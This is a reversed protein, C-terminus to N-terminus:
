PKFCQVYAIPMRFPNRVPNPKGVELYTNDWPDLSGIKNPSEREYGM